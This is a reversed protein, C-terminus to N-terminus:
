TTSCGKGPTYPRPKAAGTLFIDPGAGGLLAVQLKTKYAENETYNYVIKIQPNAKEFAKIQRILCMGHADSQNPRLIGWLTLRVSAAAGAINMGAPIFLMFLMFLLFVVGIRKLTKKM